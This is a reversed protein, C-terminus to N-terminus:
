DEEEDVEAPIAGLLAATKALYSERDQEIEKERALISEVLKTYAVAGSSKPYFEYISGRNNAREVDVNLPISPELILDGFYARINEMHQAADNNDRAQSVVVGFVPMPADIENEEASTKLDRITNLMISIGLLSFGNLTIPILIDTCAMFANVTIVGLNPPTDILIYDFKSLYPKIANRLRRERMSENFLQVEAYNMWLSSRVIFLNPDSTPRILEHLPRKHIFAEYITNKQGKLVKQTLSWTANSQADTDIVLVRKGQRALGYGVNVTTTTKTVGGKNNAMSLVRASKVM